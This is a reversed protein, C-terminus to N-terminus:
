VEEFIEELDVEFGQLLKSNTKGKEVAHSHLVYKKEEIAFVEIVTEEPFVLWYEEVEFKEYIEKKTITDTVFSSPSVIEIVLDPSGFIGKKEIIKRRSKSIFLIDPQVVIDGSLIVDTPADFIKGLGKDRVFKRLFFGLNGSVDQHNTNPVLVMSLAGDIIEYRKDDTISLYDEYTYQKKEEVLAARM